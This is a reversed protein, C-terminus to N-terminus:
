PLAQLKKLNKLNFHRTQIEKISCCFFDILPTFLGATATM